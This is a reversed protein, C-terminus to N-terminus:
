ERHLSTGGVMQRANGLSAAVDIIMDEQGIVLNREGLAVIIERPDVDFREGAHQIHLLFAAPVGAYGLTATLRDIEIPRPMLEPRVYTDAADQVAFLDVGTEIGLRNCVAILAENQCNGAGAGMGALTVDIVSAGEEIAAITNAVALSLSNHAHFGVAVDDPLATRMAAVRARVDDPLLSGSSDVIIVARSGAAAVLAGAEAIREPSAINAMGLMTLPEMGLERALGLHQLGTDAETCVCGVRVVTAGAAAAMELDRKTGIGPVVLVAVKSRRVTETAATILADDPHAPFGGQLSAGGLGDGHGVVIAWVGAADLLSSVRCVQEPTLQHAISHSGDRLTTDIIRVSQGSM